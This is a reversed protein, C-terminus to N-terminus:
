LESSNLTLPTSPATFDSSYVGSSSVRVDSILGTFKDSGTAGAGLVMTGANGFTATSTTSGVSTGNVFLKVGSNRRSVAVHKWANPSYSSSSTILDNSGDHFVVDYNSGNTVIKIGSGDALELVQGSTATPKIWAEATFNGEFELQDNDVEIYDTSGDFEVSKYGSGYPSDTTSVTPTGKLELVASGTEDIITADDFPLLLSTNTVAALPETPPTFEATYVATGNVVRFDSIYGTTLFNTDWWGGIVVDVNSLSSSNTWSQVESGNLYTKVDSGSRVVAIHNWQNYAGQTSLTEAGSVGDRAKWVNSTNIGVSPYSQTSNWLDNSPYFQFAGGYAEPYWWCEVTFDGALAGSTGNSVVLYDGTGDFIASGAHSAASYELYDYPADRETSISGSQTVAVPDVSSSAANFSLSYLYARGANTFTPSGNSGPDMPAAFVFKSADASVSNEVIRLLRYDATNSTFGEPHLFEGVKAYSNTKDLIAVTAEHEIAVFLYDGASALPKNNWGGVFTSDNDIDGMLITNTLTYSSDYVYLRGVNSQDDTVYFNTGDTHVVKGFRANSAANGSVLETSSVSGQNLGNAIADTLSYVLAKGSDTSSNDARELGVLIYDGASSIAGEQWDNTGGVLHFSPGETTTDSLDWGWVGRHWNLNNVNNNIDFALLINNDINYAWNAHNYFQGAVKKTIGSQSGDSLNYVYIAEQWVTSLPSQTPSDPNNYSISTGSVGAVIVVQTNSMFIRRGFYDSSNAGNYTYLLSPTSGSIDYVKVAGASNASSSEMWAGVAMYNGDPSMATTEVRTQNNSNGTLGMSTPTLTADVSSSVNAPTTVNAVAGVYPLHCALLATDATATLRETPVTITESTADYASSGNIFRVDTVSGKFGETSFGTHGIKFERDTGSTVMTTSYTATGIRSGDLFVSVTSGSRCVVLHVWRDRPMTTGTTVIRNPYYAFTIEGSNDADAMMFQLADADNWYPGISMARTYNQLTTSSDVYFWGEMSFEDINTFASSAATWVYSSDTGFSTSYGGAAYPSFAGQQVDGYVTVSHSNTSSDVFSNNSM